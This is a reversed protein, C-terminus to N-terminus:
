RKGFLNWHRDFSIGCNNRTGAAVVEFKEGDPSIRFVGGTGTVQTSKTGHFYTWHLWHDPRKFDGYNVIEDGNSFYLDGEPGIATGHIGQHMDWGDMMPLGWVLRKAVVGQRKKVAGPLLYIATHTSVYLDDGRITIDYVWADKPFRFLEQRPQYLGKSSPEYVFLAERCGAFLRGASDLQLGLFSEREDRDILVAKLGPGGFTFAPPTEAALAATTSLVLVLLRCIM